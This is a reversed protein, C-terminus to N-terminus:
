AKRSSLAGRLNRGYFYLLDKNQMDIDTAYKSIFKLDKSGFQVPGPLEPVPYSAGASADLSSQLCGDQCFALGTDCFPLVGEMAKLFEASIPKSAIQVDLIATADLWKDPYIRGMIWSGDDFWVTFSSESKGFGKPTKKSKLLIDCFKKPINFNGLETGHWYEVLLFRNTAFMSGGSNLITRLAVNDGRSSVIPNLLEIAKCFAIDLEIEPDNPKVHQVKDTCNIYVQLEGSNVHLKHLNLQTIATQDTSQELSKLFNKINAQVNLDEEIPYGLCITDTFATILNDGISCYEAGSLSVFKLANILGSSHSSKSKRPAM